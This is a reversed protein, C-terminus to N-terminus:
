LMVPHSGLSSRLTLIICVSTSSYLQLVMEAAAKYFQESFGLREKLMKCGRKIDERSEFTM